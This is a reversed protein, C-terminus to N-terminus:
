WTMDGSKVSPHFLMCVDKFSHDVNLLLQCLGNVFVLKIIIILTKPYIFLIKSLLANIILAQCIFAKEKSLLSCSSSKFWRIASDRLEMYCYLGSRSRSDLRQKTDVSEENRDCCPSVKGCYRNWWWCILLTVM